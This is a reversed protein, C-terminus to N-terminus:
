TRVRRILSHRAREFLGVHRRIIKFGGMILPRLMILAQPMFWIKRQGWLFFGFSHPRLLKLAM